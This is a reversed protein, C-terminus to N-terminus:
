LSKWNCSLKRLYNTIHLGFSFRFDFVIAIIM